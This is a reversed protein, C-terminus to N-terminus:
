WKCQSVYYDFFHVLNTELNYTDFLDNFFADNNM